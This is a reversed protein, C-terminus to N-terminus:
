SARRSPGARRLMTRERDLLRGVTAGAREIAQEVCVYPDHSVDDLTSSGIRRGRVVVHCRKDVGGKPGNLDAIRVVVASLESGFRSLHFFVRKEAHDRLAASADLGRFRVDVKM